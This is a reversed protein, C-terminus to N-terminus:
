FIFRRGIVLIDDIQINCEGKYEEIFNDLYIKQEPMSLHQIKLLLEKFTGIKLKKNDPGGFQDAYGDSFLYITDGSEIQIEHNIFNKEIGPALGIAYRNARTEILTNNRILWLPNFAGSYELKHIEKDYRVLAMDMGDHIQNDKHHQHLTEAVEENLQNMIDSPKLINYEQLIKNLNNHGIISMFAGPVGHGTCDIAAFWENTDTSYSWFFDGSVIDKPKFLVFSNDFPLDPPLLANQIRSAYHISDLIDKNKLELQRNINVVEITRQKVKEELISKEKILNKERIKIYSFLVFLILVFMSIRFWWTQYFPPNITFTFVAPESSWVGAYNKAIVKFTYTGPALAQYVSQTSTTTQWESNAGELIVKYVVADPNTLSVSSYEMVISNQRFNLKINGALDLTDMNVIFKNIKPIPESRVIKEDKPSYRVAGNVTGIWLSNNSDVYVANHKTEIGPLGNRKTYTYINNNKLDVRNMGMGTGIFLSGNFCSVFSIVDSLLGSNRSYEKIVKSNKFCLVGRNQTGIWINGEKDGTICNPTAGGLSFVPCKPTLSDKVVTLGQGTGIYKINNKDVYICTVDNSPLGNVQSLTIGYGKEPDYNYLYNKTGIWLTNNKDIELATIEKFNDLLLLNAPYEFKKTKANFLCMGYDALGFWINNNRDQRMYRVQTPKFYPESPIVTYKDEESRHPNYKVVGDNTGFWINKEKDELFSWIETSPFTKENNVFLTFSEDKLVALGEERTSFLLNGEGDETISYINNDNLGNQKNLVSIIKDGRIRTVGGTEFHGAWIDGSHDQFLVSIYNSALGDRIDYIKYKKTRNDFKYLGGHYTGYWLNFDKDEMMCTIQFYAPVGNLTEFNNEKPNYVKILPNTIFYIKNDHLRICSFIQDGLRNGKYQEYKLKSLPASPNIVKIAGEGDSTIWINGYSDECFATIDKDKFIIRDNRSEFFHGNYRSIGGKRHGMWINGKSDIFIANIGYEAIGNIKSFNEVTKGDFTSLGDGTGM